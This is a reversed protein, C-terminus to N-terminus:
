LIVADQAAWLIVKICFIQFIKRLLEDQSFFLELLIIKRYVMWVISGHFYLALLNGSILSYYKQTQVYSYLTYFSFLSTDFENQSYFLFFWNSNRKLLIDNVSFVSERPALRDFVCVEFHLMPLFITFSALSFDYLFSVIMMWLNPTSPWFWVSRSLTDYNIM